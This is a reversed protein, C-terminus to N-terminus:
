LEPRGFLGWPRIIIVGAMIAFVIVLSMAPFALIGFSEVEAILLAAVFSGPLSGLGGIVVVAIAEMILEGDM